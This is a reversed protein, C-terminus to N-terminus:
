RKKDNKEGNEDLCDFKGLESNPVTRITIDTSDLQWTEGSKEELQRMFVHNQPNAVDVKKISDNMTQILKTSFLSNM